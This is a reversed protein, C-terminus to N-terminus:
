SKDGWEIRKLKGSELYYLAAAYLIRV